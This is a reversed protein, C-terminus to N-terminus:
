HKKRKVALLFHKRITMDNYCYSPKVIVFMKVVNMPNDQSIAENNSAIFALGNMAKDSPSPPRAIIQNGNIM